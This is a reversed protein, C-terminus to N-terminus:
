IRCLLLVSVLFMSMYSMVFSTVYCCFYQHLEYFTKLILLLTNLVNNMLVSLDKASDVSRSQNESSKYSQYADFNMSYTRRQVSSRNHMKM